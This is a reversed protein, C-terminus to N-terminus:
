VQGASHLIKVAFAFLARLPPSSPKSQNPFNSQVRLYSYDGFSLPFSLAKGEKKEKLQARLPRRQPSIEEM